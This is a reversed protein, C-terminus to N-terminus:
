DYLGHNLNNFVTKLWMLEAELHITTHDFIANAIPPIHPDKMEQKQHTHVHTLAEQIGDIRKNLATILESRPMSNLFFLGIDLDYFQREYGFWTERLLRDFEDKGASTIEYITRSPRSGSQETSAKHILGEENMKNLAFYISGFAISTWDGMREEILQKLEYGYLPKERLFGLIVLRVSM